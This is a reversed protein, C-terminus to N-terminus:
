KELPPEAPPFSSGHDDGDLDLVDIFEAPTFADVIHLQVLVNATEADAIVNAQSEEGAGGQALRQRHADGANARALEAASEEARDSPRLQETKPGVGQYAEGGSLNM